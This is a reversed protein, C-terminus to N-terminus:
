LSASEVRVGPRRDRKEPTRALTIERNNKPNSGRIKTEEGVSTRGPRMLTANQAAAHRKNRAQKKCDWRAIRACLGDMRLKANLLWRWFHDQLFKVLCAYCYLYTPQWAIFEETRRTFLESILPGLVQRKELDIGLSYLDITHNGELGGKLLNPLFTRFLFWNAETYLESSPRSARCQSCVGDNVSDLIWNSPPSHNEPAAVGRETWIDTLPGDFYGYDNEWDFYFASDELVEPFSFGVDDESDVNWALLAGHPGTTIYEDLLFVESWHQFVEFLFVVGSFFELLDDIPYQKLVAVKQRQIRGFFEDNEGLEEIEAAYRDPAFIKCFLMFRYMARRFRHSEDLTLASTRSAPDKNM